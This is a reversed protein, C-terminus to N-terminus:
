TRLVLEALGLFILVSLAREVSGFAMFAQFCSVSNSNTIPFSTPACSVLAYNLTANWAGIESRYAARREQTYRM